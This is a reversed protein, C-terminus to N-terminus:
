RKEMINRIVTGVTKAMRLLGIDNPHIDDVTCDYVNEDAFFGAGDIFYVNRDGAERARLYSQMIVDRCAMVEGLSNEATYFNPRTIMIYPVDPRMVRFIQYLPWHTKGLYEPDPANHDYDCVFVSMPLSAMYRVLAQEGKASGGFGLNIYDMNLMRSIHAEYTQGPRSAATGQVISSGYFCIPPYARYPAGASLQALPALGIELTDVASHIPFNITYSRMGGAVPLRILQEYGDTVNEPIRFDRVFRSGFFGDEYLDFGASAALTLLWYRGISRYKARIAIFPSDTSFRVRGGASELYMAALRPCGAQGVEDPLRNFCPGSQSRYFGHLSFPEQRVDRWIVAEGNIMGPTQKVDSAANRNM